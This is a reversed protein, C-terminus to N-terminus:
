KMPRSVALLRADLALGAGRAAEHNVEFRVKGDVKVFNVMGGAQTFGESDGVTLVSRRGLRKFVDSLRPLESSSVFLIHCDGLDELRAFRAIRISRGKVRQEAAIADLDGGFPDLGLIGIVYPENTSGPATQPWEVFMPFKTLFAAQVPREPVTQAKATGVTALLTFLVVSMWVAVVPCRDLVSSLAGVRRGGRVLTAHAAHSRNRHVAEM